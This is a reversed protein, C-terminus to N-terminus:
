RLGLMKEYFAINEAVIEGLMELRNSAFSQNLMKRRQDITLPTRACLQWLRKVPDDSLENASFLEVNGGMEITLNLLHNVYTTLDRLRDAEPHDLDPTPSILAVPYPDDPLWSSIAVKDEAIVEVVRDGTPILGSTSIRVRIGYLAERERVPVTIKEDTTDVIVFTGENRESDRILQHYRPEFVRLTMSETPLLVVKIVFVGSPMEGIFPVDNYM